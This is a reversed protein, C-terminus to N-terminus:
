RKDQAPDNCDAVFQDCWTKCTYRRGGIVVSRLVRGRAGVSAWRWVTVQNPNTAFFTRAHQLSVLQENSESM